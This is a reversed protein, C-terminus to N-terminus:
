GRLTGGLRKEERIVELVKDKIQKALEQRAKNDEMAGSSETKESGSGGSNGGGSNGGGTGGTVTINIEGANEKTVDILEELKEILEESSEGGGLGEQGGANASELNGQGLRQTAASNLVFEGGTLMAPVDDVGTGNPVYGGTARGFPFPNRQNIFSSSGGAGGQYTSPGLNDALTARPASGYAM